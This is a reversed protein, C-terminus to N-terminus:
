NLQYHIGRGYSTGKRQEGYNSNQGNYDDISERSIRKYNDNVVEIDRNNDNNNNNYNNVIIAHKL